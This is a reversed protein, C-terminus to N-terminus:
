RSTRVQRLATQVALDPPLGLLQLDYATQVVASQRALAARQQRMSSNQAPLANRQAQSAAQQQLAYAQYQLQMAQAVQVQRLAAAQFRAAGTTRLGRGSALASQTTGTTTGTTGTSPTGNQMAQCGGNQQAQVPQASLLVVLGAPLLATAVSRRITSLMVNEKSTPNPIPFQSLSPVM